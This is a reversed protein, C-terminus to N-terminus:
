EIELFATTFIFYQQWHLSPTRKDAATHGTCSEDDDGGHDM